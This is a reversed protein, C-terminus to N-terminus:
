VCGEHHVSAYLTEYEEAAQQWTFGNGRVSAAAALQRRLGRDRLILGLAGALAVPDEPSVLLAEKGDRVAEPIGGVKTAVIAVGAQM